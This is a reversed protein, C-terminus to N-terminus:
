RIMSCRNSHLMYIKQNTGCHDVFSQPSKWEEFFNVLESKSDIEIVFAENMVGTKTEDTGYLHLRQKLEDISMFNSKTPDTSYITMQPFDKTIDAPDPAYTLYFVIFLCTMIGYRQKYLSHIVFTGLHTTPKGKIGGRHISSVFYLAILYIVDIGFSCIVVPWMTFKTAFIDYHEVHNQKLVHGSYM